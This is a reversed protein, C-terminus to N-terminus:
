QTDNSGKLVISAVGDSIRDGKGGGRVVGSGGVDDDGADVVVLMVVMLMVVVLMVVMLMVVVLMVVVVSM